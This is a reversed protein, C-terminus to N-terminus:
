MLYENPYDPAFCTCCGIRSRLLTNTLCDLVSLGRVNNFPGRYTLRTARLESETIDDARPNSGPVSFVDMLGELRM